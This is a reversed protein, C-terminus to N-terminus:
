KGCSGGTKACDDCCAPAGSGFRFIAGSSFLMGLKRTVDYLRGQSVGFAYSFYAGETPDDRRNNAARVVREFLIYGLAGIAGRVLMEAVITPIQNDLSSHNERKNIQLADVVENAVFETLGGGVIGLGMGITEFKLSDALTALSVM